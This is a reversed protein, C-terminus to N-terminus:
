KVYIVYITTVSNIAIYNFKSTIKSVDMKVIKANKANSPSIRLSLNMRLRIVITPRIELSRQM